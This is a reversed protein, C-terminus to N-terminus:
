ENSIKKEKDTDCSRYEKWYGSRLENLNEKKKYDKNSSIFIFINNFLLFAYVVSITETKEEDFRITSQFSM